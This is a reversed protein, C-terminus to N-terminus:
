KEIDHKDVDELINKVSMLGSRYRTSYVIPVVWRLSISSFYGIKRISIDDYGYGAAIALIPGITVTGKLYLGSVYNKYDIHYDTGYELQGWIINYCRNIEITQTFPYIYSTAINIYPIIGDEGNKISKEYFLGWLVIPIQLTMESDNGNKEYLGFCYANNSAIFLVCYIISYKLMQNVKQMKM